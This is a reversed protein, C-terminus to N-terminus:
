LTSADGAHYSIVPPKIQGLAWLQDAKVMADYVSMAKVELYFHENPEM